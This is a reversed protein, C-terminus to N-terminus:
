PRDPEDPAEESGEEGDAEPSGNDDGREGEEDLMSSVADFREPEDLSLSELFALEDRYSEEEPEEEEDAKGEPTPRPPPGSEGSGITPVEEPAPGDPEPAEDGSEEAEEAHGSGASGAPPGAASDSEEDAPEPGPGGEEAPRGAAEAVASVVDDLETVAAEERELDEQLEEIRDDLAQRREEWESDDLEGVRHRLSAEERSRRREELESALEEKEAERERLAEELESRHEALEAEVEDLRERYDSAVPGYVEPRVEDELEDLEELWELYTSREELLDSIEAPVPDADPHDPNPNM